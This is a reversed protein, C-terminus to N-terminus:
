NPILYISPSVLVPLCHENLCRKTKWSNTPSSLAHKSSLALCSFKVTFFFGLIVGLDCVVNSPQICCSDSVHLKWFHTNFDLNSQSRRGVLELKSTNLLMPTRWSQIDLFLAVLKAKPTEIVDTSLKIYYPTTLPFIIAFIIVYQLLM